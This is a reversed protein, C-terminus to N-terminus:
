RCSSLNPLRSTLHHWHQQHKAERLETTHCRMVACCARAASFAMSWYTSFGGLGTHLADTSLSKHM